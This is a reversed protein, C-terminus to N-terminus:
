KGGSIVMGGSRSLNEALSKPNLASHTVIGQKIPGKASPPTVGQKKLFRISESTCYQKSSFKDPYRKPDIMDKDLKSCEHADLEWCRGQLPDYHRFNYYVLGLADDSYESSFRLPNALVGQAAILGGFPEYEYYEAIGCTLEAFVLESVNKNGDHTYYSTSTNFPQFTSFNWILPRTTIQELSGGEVRGVHEHEVRGLREGPLVMSRRAASRRRPRVDRSARNHFPRKM